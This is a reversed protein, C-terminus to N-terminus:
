KKSVLLMINQKAVATIGNEGRKKFKKFPTAHFAKILFINKETVYTLMCVQGFLFLFFIM